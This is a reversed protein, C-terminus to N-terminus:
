LKPNEKWSKLKLTLKGRLGDKTVSDIQAEPQNLYACGKVGERREQNNVRWLKKLEENLNKKFKIWFDVARSISSKCSM